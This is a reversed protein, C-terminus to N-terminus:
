SLIFIRTGKVFGHQGLLGMTEIGGGALTRIFNGCGGKKEAFV